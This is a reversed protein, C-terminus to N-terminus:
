KVGLRSLWEAHIEKAVIDQAKLSHLRSKLKNGCSCRIVWYYPLDANVVGWDMLVDDSECCHGVLADQCQKCVFEFEENSLFQNGCVSCKIIM